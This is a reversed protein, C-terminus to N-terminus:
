KTNLYHRQIKRKLAMSAEAVVEPHASMFLKILEYQERRMERREYWGLILIVVILGQIGYKLLEGVAVIDVM